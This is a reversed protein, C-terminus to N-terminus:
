ALAGNADAVVLDMTTILTLGTQIWLQFETLSNNPIVSTLDIGGAGQLPTSNLVFKYSKYTAGFAPFYEANRDFDVNNAWNISKINDYNNVGNSAPTTVAFTGTILGAQAPDKPYLTFIIGADKATLTVVATGGNAATVPANKDANISAVIATAIQIATANNPVNAAKTSVQYRKELPVNQFETPTKDISDWLIRFTEGAANGVVANCTFTAVQKAAAVAAQAKIRLNAGDYAKLNKFLIPQAFGELFFGDTAAAPTAIDVYTGTTDYKLVRLQSAANVIMQKEPIRFM